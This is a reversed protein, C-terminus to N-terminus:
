TKRNEARKRGGLAGFYAVAPDVNNHRLSLGVQCIEQGLCKLPSSVDFDKDVATSALTPRLGLHHAQFPSAGISPARGLSRHLDDDRTRAPRPLRM